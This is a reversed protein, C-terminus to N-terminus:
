EAAIDIMIRGFVDAERARHLADELDELPFRAGVIPKIKGIRVLEMTRVIEARTAYRTGAVILEELLLREPDLRLEAGPVHGLAVLTGARGLARYGEGLTVSTAVTDVVGAIAGDGADRVQGAWSTGEPVVVTDAIGLKGIETAKAVSTEVAVAIGGFARIM